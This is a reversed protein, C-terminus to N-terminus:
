KTHGLACAILLAEGLDAGASLLADVIEINGKAAALMLPTWGSTAPRTDVTSALVERVEDALVANLDGREISRILHKGLDRDRRPRDEGARTHKKSSM